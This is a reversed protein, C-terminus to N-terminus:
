NASEREREREIERDRERQKWWGAPPSLEGGNPHFDSLEYDRSGKQSYLSTDRSLNVCKCSMKCSLM